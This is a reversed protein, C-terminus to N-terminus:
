GHPDDLLDDMLDDTRVFQRREAFRKSAYDDL